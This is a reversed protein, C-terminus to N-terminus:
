TLVAEVSLESDGGGDLRFRLVLDALQGGEAEPGALPVLPLGWSTRVKSDGRSDLEVGEALSAEFWCVMARPPAELGVHHLRAVAERVM